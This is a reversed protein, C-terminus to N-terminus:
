NDEYRIFGQFNNGMIQHKVADPINAATIKAQQVTYSRGPADSGFLVRQSGLIAVANEVVGCEPVGGSTDVYINPMPAIAELGERRNGGAHAMIIRAQPYEIGLRAVDFPESEDSYNGRNKLYSHQQIFLDRQMAAEIVPFLIASSAKVAIWLKIGIMGRDYCRQMEERWDPNRPNLYCLGYVEEPFEQMLKLVDDNAERVEQSSPYPLYATRGLSSIVIRDIGAERARIVIEQSCRSGLLANHSRNYTHVHADIIM